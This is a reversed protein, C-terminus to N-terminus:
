GFKKEHLARHFMPSMSKPKERQYFYLNISQLKMCRRDFLYKRSVALLDRNILFITNSFSKVFFGKLLQFIKNSSSYKKQVFITEWNM